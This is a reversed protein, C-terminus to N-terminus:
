GAGRPASERACERLRPCRRSRRDDRIRGEPPILRQHLATSGARGRWSATRGEGRPRGLATIFRAPIRACNVSTTAPTPRKRSATCTHTSTSASCRRRCVDVRRSARARVSRRDSSRSVSSRRSRGTSDTIRGRGAGILLRLASASTSSRPTTTEADFRAHRPRGKFRVASPRSEVTRALAPRCPASSTACSAPWRSTPAASTRPRDAV